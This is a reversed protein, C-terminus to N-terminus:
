SPSVRVAPLGLSTGVGSKAGLYLVGFLAAGVGGVWGAIKKSQNANKDLGTTIGLWAASGTIGLVLLTEIFGPIGTYGTFLVDPSPPPVTATLSSAQSLRAYVPRYAQQYGIM